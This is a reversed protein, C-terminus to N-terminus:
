RNIVINVSSLILYSLNTLTECLCIMIFELEFDTIEKPVREREDIAEVVLSQYIHIAHTSSSNCFKGLPHGIIDQPIEFSIHLPAVLCPFLCLFKLLRSSEVLIMGKHLFYPLLYGTMGALRPVLALHFRLKSM